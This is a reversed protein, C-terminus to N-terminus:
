VNGYKTIDETSLGMLEHARSRHRQTQSLNEPCVEGMPVVQPATKLWLNFSDMDDMASQFAWDRQFPLIKGAKMAELVVGDAKTRAIEFQYADAKLKLAEQGELLAAVAQYVDEITASPDLQLLAALEALTGKSGDEINEQEASGEGENPKDTCAIPSMADIAPTNTLAASHLEVARRTNRQIQIVPSLYRYERNKLYDAARDTWDVDGYIGDNRLVINKIWGAAPAQVDQLTQHEYDIPIQLQREMFRNRISRFSEHDVLFDGKTSHVLGLPLLKVLKRSMQPSYGSEEFPMSNSLFIYKIDM